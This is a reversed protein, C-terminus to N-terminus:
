TTPPRGAASDMMFCGQTLPTKVPFRESGYTGPLYTIDLDARPIDLCLSAGNELVVSDASANRLTFSRAIVNEQPFVVYRLTLVCKTVPDEMYLSLTETDADPRAYPLGPIPERGATIEHGTYVFETVSSGDAGKIRMAEHRMDGNDYTPYESLICDFSFSPGYEPPYPSFARYIYRVEPLTDTLPGYYRQVPFKGDFLDIIYLSDSLRLTFRKEAESYTIIDSM